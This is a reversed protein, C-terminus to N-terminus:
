IFEVHAGARPSVSVSTLLLRKRPDAVGFTLTGRVHFGDEIGSRSSM